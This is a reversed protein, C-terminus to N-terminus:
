LHGALTRCTEQLGHAGQALPVAPPHGNGGGLPDAKNLSSNQLVFYGGVCCM